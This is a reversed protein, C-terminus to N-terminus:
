RQALFKSMEEPIWWRLDLVAGERYAPHDLLPLAEIPIFGYARVDRCRLLQGEHHSSAFSSWPDSDTDWAVRGYGPPADAVWACADGETMGPLASVERPPQAPSSSFPYQMLKVNM